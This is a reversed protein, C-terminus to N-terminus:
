KVAYVDTFKRGEADTFQSLEDRRIKTDPRERYLLTDRSNNLDGLPGNYPYAVGVNLRYAVIRNPFVLITDTGNEGDRLYTQKPYMREDALEKERIENYKKM